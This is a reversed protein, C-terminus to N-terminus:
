FSSVEELRSGRAGLYIQAPNYWLTASYVVESCQVIQNGGLLRADLYPNGPTDKTTTESDVAGPLGEVTTIRGDLFCGM